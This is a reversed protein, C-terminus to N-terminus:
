FITSFSASVDVVNDIGVKFIDTRTNLTGDGLQGYTNAGCAYVTKDSKIFVIIWDRLLKIWM